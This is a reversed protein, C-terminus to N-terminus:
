IRSFISYYNISYGHRTIMSCEYNRLKIVPTDKFFFWGVSNCFWKWFCCNSGSWIRSDWVWRHIFLDNPQLEYITIAPGSSSLGHKVSPTSITELVKLVEHLRRRIQHCFSKCHNWRRYLAQICLITLFPALCYIVSLNLVVKLFKNLYM